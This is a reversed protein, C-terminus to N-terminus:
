SCRWIKPLPELPSRVVENCAAVKDNFACPSRRPIVHCVRIVKISFRDHLFRVLVEISDVVLSPEETSRDNTLGFSLSLAAEM